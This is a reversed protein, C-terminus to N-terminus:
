SYLHSLAVLDLLRMPAPPLNMIHFNKNVSGAHNSIDVLCGIGTSDIFTLDAADLVIEARDDRDLQTIAAARVQDVTGLDLAGSVHLVAVEGREEIALPPSTM